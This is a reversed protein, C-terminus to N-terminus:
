RRPITPQTVYDQVDRWRSKGIIDWSIIEKCQEVIGIPRLPGHNGEISHIHESASSEKQNRGKKQQLKDEQKKKGRVTGRKRRRVCVVRVCVHRLACNM